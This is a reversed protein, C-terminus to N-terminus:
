CGGGAGEYVEEYMEGKKKLLIYDWSSYNRKQIVIECIGDGDLDIVDAFRYTHTEDPIGPDPFHSFLQKFGDQTPELVLTITYQMNPQYDGRKVEEGIIIYTVLYEPKGDGDLDTARIDTVETKEAIEKKVGRVVFEKKAYEYLSKELNTDVFFEPIKRRPALSAIVLGHGSFHLKASDFYSLRVESVVPSCSHLSDIQTIKAAGCKNGDVYLELKRGHKYEERCFRDFLGGLVQESNPDDFAEAPTPVPYSFEGKYIRVVPDIVLHGTIGNREISYLVIGPWRSQALAQSSTLVLACFALLKPFTNFKM